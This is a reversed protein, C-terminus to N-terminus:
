SGVPKRDNAVRRGAGQRRFRRLSARLTRFPHSSRRFGLCAFFGCAMGSPGPPVTEDIPFGPPNGRVSPAFVGAIVNFCTTKGAGNPGIMAAIAGQEVNFSVSDVARLGRFSKSLDRVELLAM